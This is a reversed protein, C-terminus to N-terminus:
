GLGAWDVGLWGDIDGWEVHLGAELDVQVDCVVFVFVIEDVRIPRLPLCIRSPTPRCLRFITHVCVHMGLTTTFLRGLPGRARSDSKMEGITFLLDNVSLQSPLPFQLASFAPSLIVSRLYSIGSGHRLRTPMAGRFTRRVCERTKPPPSNGQRRVEQTPEAAIM